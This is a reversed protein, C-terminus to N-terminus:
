FQVMMGDRPRLKGLRSQIEDKSVDTFLGIELRTCDLRNAWMAMAIYLDAADTAAEEDKAFVFIEEARPMKLPERVLRAMAVANGSKVFWIDNSPIASRLWTKVAQTSALDTKRRMKTAIWAASAEVDNFNMREVPKAHYDLAQRPSKELVASM